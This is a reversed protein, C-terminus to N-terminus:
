SRRLHATSGGVQLASTQAHEAHTLGNRPANALPSDDLDVSGGLGDGLGDVHGLLHGAHRDVRRDDAKGTAVDRRLVAATDDRDGRAVALHAVLVHM